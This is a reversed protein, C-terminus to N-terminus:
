SNAHTNSTVEAKGLEEAAERRFTLGLGREREQAEALASRARPIASDITEIEGQLAEVERELTLHEMKPTLGEALLDASM